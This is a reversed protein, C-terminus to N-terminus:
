QKPIVKIWNIQKVSVCYFKAWHETSPNNTVRHFIDERVTDVKNKWVCLRGCLMLNWCFKDGDGFLWSINHLLWKIRRSLKSIKRLFMKSFLGFASNSFRQINVKPQQNFLDFWRETSWHLIHYCHVIPGSCHSSPILFKENKLPIHGNRPLIDSESELKM